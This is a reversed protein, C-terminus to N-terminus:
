RKPRATLGEEMVMVEANLTYHQATTPHQVSNKSYKSTPNKRTRAKIRQRRRAPLLNDLITRGIAGTLVATGSTLVGGANTVQDRAADLAVTFSIRDPDLCPQGTTADDAIRVLAQYVTLLAYVEQDVDEPRHSRLVRGDLMTAKISFFATEVQWREHYLDVLERAPYRTHDTLSTALRWQERRVTGDSYTVTIWAEVIRVPLKGMGFTSLYSGDPLRRIILPIRRAGSRCLFEAGTSRLQFLLPYGDFGTDLLVLMGRTLQDVLRQAYGTEGTTEPGFVAGLVARTGCEVLVLLRLLPYGFEMDEGKRKRKAHLAAIPESDPLHLSTGDIAVTRLGRWFAGPTRPRAVPGALTEFLVKFPETGVRRRARCLASVCPRALGLADLGAVLKGWVARYSCQEFLALALVFYVVVRSPLLRVRKQVAGTEELVADVLAFDVVQTLEGLHGPAFAGGAVAVERTIVSKEQM